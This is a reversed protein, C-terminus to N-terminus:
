IVEEFAHVPEPSGCPQHPGAPGQVHDAAKKLLRTKHHEQENLSQMM